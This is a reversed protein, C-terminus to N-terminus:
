LQLKAVRVLPPSLRPCITASVNDSMIKEQALLSPFMQQPRLINRLSILFM